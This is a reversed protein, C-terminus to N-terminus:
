KESIPTFSYLKAANALMLSGQNGARYRPQLKAAIVNNKQLAFEFREFEDRFTMIECRGVHDSLEMLVVRGREDVRELLGVVVIRTNGGSLLMDYQQSCNHTPKGEWKARCIDIPHGSIFTGLAKREYYLKTAQDWDPFEAYTPPALDSDGFLSGQGAGAKEKKRVHRLVADLNAILSPRNM